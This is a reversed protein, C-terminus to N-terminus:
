GDDLDRAIDALSENPSEVADYYNTEGPARLGYYFDPEVVDLLISGGVRAGHEDIWDPLLDTESRPDRAGDPTSYIGPISLDNGTLAREVTAFREHGDLDFRVVDGAPFADRDDEPIAISVGTATESLTARVTHVSPNESALRDAM